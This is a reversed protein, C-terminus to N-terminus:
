GNPEIFPGHSSPDIFPGYGSPDITNLELCRSMKQAEKPEHYLEGEPLNSETGYFLNFPPSISSEKLPRRGGRWRQCPMGRADLTGYLRPKAFSALDIPRPISSFVLQLTLSGGPRQSSSAM